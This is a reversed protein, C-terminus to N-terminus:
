GGSVGPFIGLAALLSAFVIGSLAFWRLRVLWTFHRAALSAHTDADVQDQVDLM